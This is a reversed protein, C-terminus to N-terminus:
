LKNAQDLLGGSPDRRMLETQIGELEDEKDDRAMKGFVAAGMSENGSDTQSALERKISASKMELQQDTWQAYKTSTDGISASPPPVPANNDSSCWILALAFLLSAFRIKMATNFTSINQIFVCTHDGHPVHLAKLNNFDLERYPVAQGRCWESM